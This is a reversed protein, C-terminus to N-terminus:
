APRNRGGIGLLIPEDAPDHGVALRELYRQVDCALDGAVAWERDPLGLLHHVCIDVGVELTRQRDLVPRLDERDMGVIGPLRHAGEDLLARGAEGPRSRLALRLATVIAGTVGVRRAGPGCAGLGRGVSDSSSTTAAARRRVRRTPRAPIDM